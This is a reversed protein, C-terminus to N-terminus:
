QCKPLTPSRMTHGAVGLISSGTCHLKTVMLLVIIIYVLRGTIREVLLDDEIDFQIVATLQLSNKALLAQLQQTTIFLHVCVRCQRLARHGLPYPMQSRILPNWTRIRAPDNKKKKQKKKKKKM